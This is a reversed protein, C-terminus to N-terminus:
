VSWRSYKRLQPNQCHGSMQPFFVVVLFLVRNMSLSVINFEAIPKEANLMSTYPYATHTM